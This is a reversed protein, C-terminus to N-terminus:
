AGPCIKHKRYKIGQDLFGLCFKNCISINQLFLKGNSSLLQKSLYLFRVIVGENGEDESEALSIILNNGNEKAELSYRSDQNLYLKNGIEEIIKEIISVSGIVQDGM